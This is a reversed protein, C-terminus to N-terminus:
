YTGAVTYNPTHIYFKEYNGVLGELVIDQMDKFNFPFM